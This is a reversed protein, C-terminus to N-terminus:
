PKTKDQMSATTKLDSGMSSLITPYSLHSLPWRRQGAYLEIKESRLFAWVCYKSYFFTM